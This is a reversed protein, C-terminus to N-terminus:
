LINPDKNRDGLKPLSGYACIEATAAGGTHRPGGVGSLALGRFWLM